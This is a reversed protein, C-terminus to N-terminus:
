KLRAAVEPYDRVSALDSDERFLERNDPLLAIARDMDALISTVTVRRLAKYCARNYYAVELGPRLELATSCLSIAEDLLANRDAEVETLMALRKKVLAFAVLVQPSRPSKSLYNKALSEARKLADVKTQGTSADALDVLLRVDGSDAYDGARETVGRVAEQATKEAVFRAEGRAEGLLKDRLTTLLSRAGFGAVVGFGILPLVDEVGSELRMARPFVLFAAWAGGMGILADALSGFDITRSDEGSYSCLLLKRDNQIFGSIIGGLGGTFALTRLYLIMTDNFSFLRLFLNLVFVIIAGVLATLLLPAAYRGWRAM